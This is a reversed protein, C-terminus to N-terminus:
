SRNCDGAQPKKVKEGSGSKLNGHKYDHMVDEMIEQQQASQKVMHVERDKM